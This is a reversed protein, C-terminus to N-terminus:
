RVGVIRIPDDDTVLRTFDRLNDTYLIEAGVKLAAQLHLADYIVGSVLNLSACRKVAVEYDAKTLEIITLREGIQNIIVDAALLPQLHVKYKTPRTLNNYLEAYAHMTTTGVPGAKLAKQLLAKCAEHLEHKEILAPLLISTDFYSIM